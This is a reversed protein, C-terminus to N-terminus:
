LIGLYYYGWNQMNLQYVNSTASYFQITSGYSINGYVTNDTYGNVYSNLLTGSGCYTFIIMHEGNGSVNVVLKPINNFLVIGYISIPDLLCGM